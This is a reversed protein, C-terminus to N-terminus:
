KRTEQSFSNHKKLAAPIASVVDVTLMVTSVMMFPRWSPHSQRELQPVSAINLAATRNQTVRPEDCDLTLPEPAIRWNLRSTGWVNDIVTGGLGDRLVNLGSSLDLINLIPGTDGRTFSNWTRMM